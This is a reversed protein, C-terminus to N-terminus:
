ELQVKSAAYTWIADIWQGHGILWPAKECGAVEKVFLASELPVSKLFAKSIM